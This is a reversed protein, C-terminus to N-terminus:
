WLRPRLSERQERNRKTSWGAETRVENMLTAHSIANRFFFVKVPFTKICSKKEEKEVVKEGREGVVGSSESCYGNQLQIM